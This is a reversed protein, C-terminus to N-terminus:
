IALNNALFDIQESHATRVAPPLNGDVLDQLWAAYQNARMQLDADTVQNVDQTLFPQLYDMGCLTATQEFPRLLEAISFQNYAMRQYVAAAGGSSIAHVWSKGKLAAGGEGHAWGYTLVADIWSKMLAPCSYWYLPHQLVVIDHAEMLAQEVSVDIMQEPYHEYLDHFTVDANHQAAVMLAKNIRSSEYNPHAFIILIKNSM